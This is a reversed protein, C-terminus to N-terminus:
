NGAREKEDENGTDHKKASIDTNGFQYSISVQFYRNDFYYRATQFVGNITTEKRRASTKFLDNGRLTVSLKKDLLLFQLYLSLSSASKVDFIGEVSPFSYWYNVGSLLTKKTNLTFDNNTSIQANIGKQAAPNGELNFTFLTYNVDLSNNSSWWSVKDFTLNQSTGFRQTNIFNENTFRIVNTTSNPLPVQSYMNDEYGYYVTAVYNKYTYALELNDIFAPQLFANGEITQFPNIFYINPNLEFFGPRQIRRSYSFSATANEAPKYSLYFTPFWKIYDRGVDLMLNDSVSTTQTAEMRLGLQASWKERLDKSISIYGAEIMEDYKFDNKDKAFSTIPDDVLGSNFFEIDNLSRTSSFKSGFSLKAWSTPMEIDVKAAYNAVDQSNTNVGRYYQKSTPNNIVSIGDYTKTDPNNFIFYDLNISIKKGSTDLKVENNYNISHIKPKLDMTGESQLYRLVDGSNYEYVPTYPKDTVAFDNHAYMYQAGMSWKPSIQYNLDLRGNIGKINAKFPSSTYWLGDPFYAYDDQEQYYDRNWYSLSSAISLKRKNFDFNVGGDGGAFRRQRYAGYARINWSNIRARKLIINILGSNGVADYKAPPATIVEISKIDESRITKLFNALDQGSLNVLKDNVLVRMSGKGILNIKDNQVRVGPTVQLVDMADGQSAQSSNEVNFVLRDIKRQILSKKATVTVEDLEQINKVALTGLDKNSQLQISESYLGTGFYSVTLQYDGPVAQLRFLGVSDLITGAIVESAANTLVVEAFELPAHNAEDIVKGTIVVQAASHISLFLAIFALTNKM